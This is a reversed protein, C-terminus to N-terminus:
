EVIKTSSDVTSQLSLVGGYVLCERLDALIPKNKSNELFSLSISNAGGLYECDFLKSFKIM